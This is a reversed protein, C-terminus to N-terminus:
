FNDDLTFAMWGNEKGRIWSLTLTPTYLTDTLEDWSVRAFFSTSPHYEMFVDATKQKKNNKKAKSSFFVNDTDFQLFISCIAHCRLPWYTSSCRKVDWKEAM